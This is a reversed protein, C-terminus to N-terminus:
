AKQCEFLASIEKFFYKDASVMVAYLEHTLNLDIEKNTTARIRNSLSTYTAHEAHKFQRRASQRCPTSFGGLAHM